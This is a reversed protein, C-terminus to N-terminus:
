ATSSSPMAARLITGVPRCGSARPKPWCSRGAKACSRSTAPPKGYLRLAHAVDANIHYQASGALFYSSCERGGITRWPLVAGAEHGLDRANQRAADLGAVRWALAARAMAPQTHILFPLAYTEADWFIHGEYGEGTQGKAAISGRGDRRVAQAIQFLGHRLAGEAVPDALTIRTGAWIASWAQAQEALLADAGASTAKGVLTRARAALEDAPTEREAVYATLV